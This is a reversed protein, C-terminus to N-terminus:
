GGFLKGFMVGIADFIGDEENDDDKDDKRRDNVYNDTPENCEPCFKTDKLMIFYDCKRCRM